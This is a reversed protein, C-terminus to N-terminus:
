LFDSQCSKGAPPLHAPYPARAADPSIDDGSTDDTNYSVEDDESADDDDDGDTLTTRRTGDTTM